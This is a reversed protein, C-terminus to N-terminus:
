QFYLSKHPATKPKNCQKNCRIALSVTKRVKGRRIYALFRAAEPWAMNTRADRARTKALAMPSRPSSAQWQDDDATDECNTPFPHWMSGKLM